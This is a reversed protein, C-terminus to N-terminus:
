TILKSNEVIPNKPGAKHKNPTINAAQSWVNLTTKKVSAMPKLPKVYEPYITVWTSIDGSKAPLKKDFLFNNKYM